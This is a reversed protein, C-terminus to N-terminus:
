VGIDEAGSLQPDTSYRGAWDRCVQEFVSGM